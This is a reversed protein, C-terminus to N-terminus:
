CCAKELAPLDKLALSYKVLIPSFLRVFEEPGVSEGVYLQRFPNNNPNFSKESKEMIGPEGNNSQNLTDEHMNTM